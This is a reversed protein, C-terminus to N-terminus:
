KFNVEYVEIERNMFDYELIRKSKVVFENDLYNIDDLSGVLIFNKNMSKDLRSSIKFHNTIKDGDKHPMYFKIKKNKLEYNMSSFLLRDAVVYNNINTESSQSYVDNSFEKLGDIRNFFNTQFSFSILIYFLCAFCFNFSYNLKGLIKGNGTNIFMFIFISILAPAAWNANARVFVAELFVILLIPLSFVLLIKSFKDIQINKLNLMFGFVLFPGIMLIQIVLFELGRYFDIKANSFNANDSTHQLTLWSNNLNWIINPLLILFVCLLSLSFYKYKELLFGRFPKDILIYVLISVIFYIAAYKSLFALGLFIGLLVFNKISGKKIIKVFENLALTWFLLLFIDTSLIFSSLSVAPIILFILSCTLSEKKNLGISRSLNFIAFASLLYVLIPLMKLTFFGDGFVITYLGIFWSLLPPKSYYGFDLNKSWLWYQAEDGFLNFNTFYVSIIKLLGLFFLSLILINNKM